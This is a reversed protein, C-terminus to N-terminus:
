WCYPRRPSASDSCRCANSVFVLSGYPRDNFIPESTDIDEPTFAVMGFEINHTQRRWGRAYARDFRSWRDLTKLAPDLSFWYETARRGSFTVTFGGTYQQDRNLLALVDNAIYFAWGTSYPEPLVYDEFEQGAAPQTASVYAVVVRLLSRAIRYM